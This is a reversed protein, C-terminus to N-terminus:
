LFVVKKEEIKLRPSFTQFATNTNYGKKVSWRLFWKLLNLQKGITRNRMDLEDRLYAVYDNLKNEDIREFTLDKDFATLHNKLTGMKQYTAKMWQNENGEESVFQNFREYFTKNGSIGSITMRGILLSFEQRFTSSDPIIGKPEFASFVDEATKEYRQIEKNIINAPTKKRGHTTNNKCRQTDTSWKDIDVRYGVNFAVINKNGNWKIRYRLKADPKGNEKDLLFQCTRKITTM